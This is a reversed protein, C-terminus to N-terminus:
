LSCVFRVFTRDDFSRNGEVLGKTAIFSRVNQPDTALQSALAAESECFFYPSFKHSDSKQIVKASFM